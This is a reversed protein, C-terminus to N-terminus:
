LGFVSNIEHLESSNLQATLQEKTDCVIIVLASNYPVEDTYKNCTNSAKRHMKTSQGSEM